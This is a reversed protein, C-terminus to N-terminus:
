VEIDIDEENDSDILLFSPAAEDVEYNHCSLTFPNTDPENLLEHQEKLLEFVSHCPENEKFCTINEDESGGIPINLACAKFFNKITEFKM